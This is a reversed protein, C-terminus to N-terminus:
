GAEEEQICFILANVIRADYLFGMGDQLITIARDVSMADRYSRDSTLADFVDAVAIIRAAIPIMEGVLGKPYGSGDLREHHYLVGDLILQFQSYGSLMEVGKASHTKVEEFEMETLSGPKKLIRGPIGVKGIDHLLAASYITEVDDCDLFRAILMSYNAVRESHGKTYTDKFELVKILLAYVEIVDQELRENRLQIAMSLGNIENELGEFEQYESPIMRHQYDGLGILEVQEELRKIANKAPLFASKIYQRKFFVYLVIIMIFFMGFPLYFYEGLDHLTYEINIYAPLESDVLYSRSITQWNLLDRNKYIPVDGIEISTISKNIWHDQLFLLNADTVPYAFLLTEDGARFLSKSWLTNGEWQHWVGASTEADISMSEYDVQWGRDGYEYNLNEGSFYLVVVDNLRQHSIREALFLDLVEAKGDERYQKWIDNSSWHKLMNQVTDEADIRSMEIYRSAMEDFQFVYDNTIKYISLGGVAGLILLIFIMRNLIAQYTKYLFSNEM